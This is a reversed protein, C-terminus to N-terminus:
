VLLRRQLQEDSLGCVLRDRLADNLTTGFQCHESLRQLVACYDSLSEGQQQSRKHFRFREAIIIPKPAFHQKMIECLEDFAKDTPKAPTTLLRWLEYAKGGIVSLLVAVRKEQRVENAALFQELHEKYSTLQDVTPDFSGISGMLTM